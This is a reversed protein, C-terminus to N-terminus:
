NKQIKRCCPPIVHVFTQKTVNRRNFAAIQCSDFNIELFLERVFWFCSFAFIPPFKKRAAKSVLSKPSLRFNRRFQPFVVWFVLFWWLHLDFSVCFFSYVSPISIFYAFFTETHAKTGFRLGLPKRLERSKTCVLFQELNPGSHDLFSCFFTTWNLVHFFPGENHALFKWFNEITRRLMTKSITYLSTCFNSSM